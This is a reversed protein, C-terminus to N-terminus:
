IDKYLPLETESNEQEKKQEQLSAESKKSEDKKIFPSQNDLVENKKIEDLKKKIQEDSMKKNKNSIQDENTNDENERKDSLKNDSDYDDEIENEDDSDYNSQGFFKVIIGTLALDAGWMYYLYSRYKTILESGSNYNSYLFAHVIIYCITGIIFIRLMKGEDINSIIPLRSVVFYFM